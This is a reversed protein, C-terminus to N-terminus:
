ASLDLKLNKIKLLLAKVANRGIEFGIKHRCSNISVKKQKTINIIPVGKNIFAKLHECERTEVIEKKTSAFIVGDIINSRSLLNSYKVENNFDNSTQYMMIKYDNKYSEETIGNLTNLFFGEHLDPLIVGIIFSKKNRLASAHINRKYDLSNAIKIVKQKTKTSIEPSNSLAKSVTSVSVNLISAMDKLTVSSTRM